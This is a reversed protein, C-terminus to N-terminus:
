LNASCVLVWLIGPEFGVMEVLMFFKKKKYYLSSFYYLNTEKNAPSSHCTGSTMNLMFGLHPTELYHSEPGEGRM